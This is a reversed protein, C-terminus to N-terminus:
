RKSNVGENAKREEHGKLITRVVTQFGKVMEIKEEFSLNALRKQREKRREEKARFIDEIRINNPDFADNDM